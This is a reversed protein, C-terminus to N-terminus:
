TADLPEAAGAHRGGGGWGCTCLMPSQHSARGSEGQSRMASRAIRLSHPVSGKSTRSPPHPASVLHQATSKLQCPLSPPSLLSPTTPECVTETTHHVSYISSASGQRAGSEM